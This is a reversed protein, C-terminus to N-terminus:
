KGLMLQEVEIAEATLPSRKVPRLHVTANMVDRAELMEKTACVYIKIRSYEEDTLEVM